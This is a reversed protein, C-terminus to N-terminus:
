LKQLTKVVGMSFGERSMNPYHFICASNVFLLKWFSVFANM